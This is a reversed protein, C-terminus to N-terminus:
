AHGGGVLNLVLGYRVALLRRRASHHDEAGGAVKGLAQQYRREVVQRTGLQQRRVERQYANVAQFHGVGGVALVEVVRHTCKGRVLM